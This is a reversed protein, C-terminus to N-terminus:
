KRMCYNGSLVNTGSIVLHPNLVLLGKTDSVTYVSAVVSRSKKKKKKDENNNENNEENEQNEQNDQNDQDQLLQVTCTTPPPTDLVHVFDGKAVNTNM